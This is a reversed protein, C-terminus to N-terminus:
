NERKELVERSLVKSESDTFTFEIRKEDLFIGTGAFYEKSLTSAIVTNWSVQENKEPTLVELRHKHGCIMLDPKVYEKLLVSWEEYIDQDVDFPPPNKLHFPNHVVILRYAVDSAAYESEANNIINKIYQTQKKRFAHCCVTHGYEPHDDPKDEGCDLVLGWISGLRFSYYVNGNENPTYDSIKEAYIGRLDHNGRAYVVPIRGQTIESVITYIVDFNSLEGSDNPVDGNLILFDIDGYVKAARIPEETMNHADAIHYAHVEGPLVPSFKWTSSSVGKTETFYAKREAIEEEFVTYEQEKDLTEMPVSIRHIELSSRLIGNSDDYYYEDGIKIWLMSQVTSQVMIQYQKGVAFVAPATKLM